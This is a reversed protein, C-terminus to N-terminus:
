SPSQSILEANMQAIGLGKYSNFLSRRQITVTVMLPNYFKSKDDYPPYWYTMLVPIRFKYAYTNGMHGQIDLQPLQVVTGFQIFKRQQLAVLNNSATLGNMYNRWGYDTFYRQARSLEARYNMYDYTYASQVGEVAWATVEELTMNPESVPVERLLRGVPDAIFYWPHSPHKMLYYLMGTLMGISFLNLIFICLVFYFKKRYFDRRLFILTLADDNEIKVEANM